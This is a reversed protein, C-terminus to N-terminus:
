RAAAATTKLRRIAEFAKPSLTADLRDLRIKETSRAEGYFLEFLEEAQEGEIPATDRIAIAM